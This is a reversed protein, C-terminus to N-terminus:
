AMGPGVEPRGTRAGAGDPRVAALRQQVATAVLSALVPQMEALVARVDEATAARAGEEEARVSDILWSM